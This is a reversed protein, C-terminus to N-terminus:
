TRRMERGPSLYWQLHISSNLRIFDVTQLIVSAKPINDCLTITCQCLSAEVWGHRLSRNAYDSNRATSSAQSATVPRRKGTNHTTLQSAHSGRRAGVVASKKELQALRAHASSSSDKGTKSNLLPSTANVLHHHRRWQSTLALPTM